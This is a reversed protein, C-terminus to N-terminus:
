GPLIAEVSAVVKQRVAELTDDVRAGAARAHGGGGFQKALDAVNIADAGAKSRFSLRILDDGAEEAPAQTILVVVDVTEVMQPLDVFRDTEGFRGGSAQFDEPGLVIVAARDGAILELSDIARRLLKLKEPREMQESKRYLEAPEVGAKLLRGALAFADPSVNSFRFWGTDTALGVYLAERIEQDAFAEAESGVLQSVLQAVLMACAGCTADIVLHKAEIDGGLHHDVIITKELMPELLPKMPAVQSWAGTDVIVQLDVPEFTASEDFLHIRETGAISGVSKAVPGAVVGEAQVGALELARTLAIVCGMADGDPKAHTTVRVRRATKLLEAVAQMTTNSEYSM